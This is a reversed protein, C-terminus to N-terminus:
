AASADPRHACNLSGPAERPDALGTRDGSDPCRSAQPFRHARRAGPLQRSPWSAPRGAACLRGPDSEHAQGSARPAPPPPQRKHLLALLKKGGWSPHRRRADLIAAVIEDATQNPSRHPWCSREELGAPGARLYREIWKYGTKRSVGYRECLETIPWTDRLHDAIFQTREDMPSAQRWPM